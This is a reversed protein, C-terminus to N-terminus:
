FPRVCVEVDEIKDMYIEPISRAAIMKAKELDFALIVTPQVLIEAKGEKKPLYIICYEFLKM